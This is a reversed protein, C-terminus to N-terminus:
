GPKEKRGPYGAIRQTGKRSARTERWTSGVTLPQGPSVLITAQATDQMRDLSVFIAPLPLARLLSVM